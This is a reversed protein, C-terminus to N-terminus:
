RIFPYIEDAIWYNEFLIALVTGFVWFASRLRPLAARQGLPRLVVEAVYAISYMLNALLALIALQFLNFPTLVRFHPWTGVLWAVLVVTLLMNYVLRRPEWFQLAERVSKPLRRFPQHDSGSNETTRATDM